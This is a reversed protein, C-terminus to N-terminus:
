CRQQTARDQAGQVAAGACFVHLSFVPRLSYPSKFLRHQTVMVYRLVSSKLHQCAASSHTAYQQQCCALVAWCRSALVESPWPQLSVLSRSLILSLTSASSWINHLLNLYCLSWPKTQDSGIRAKNDADTHMGLLGLWHLAYSHEPYRSVLASTAGLLLCWCHWLFGAPM